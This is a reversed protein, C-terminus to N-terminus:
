SFKITAVLGTHIVNSLFYEYLMPLEPVWFIEGEQHEASGKWHDVAYLKGGEPLCFAMHRTSVGFWCGVEIITKVDCESILRELDAENRYWGYDFFPLLKAGRYPAPVSRM